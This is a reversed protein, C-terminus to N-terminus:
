NLVGSEALYKQAVKNGLSASLIFQEEALNKKGLELLTHGYLNLALTNFKNEILARQCFIYANELDNQDFYIKALGYLAESNNPDVELIENYCKMAMEFSKNIRYCHGELNFNEPAPPGDFIISSWEKWSKSSELKLQIGESDMNGGKSTSYLHCFESIKIGPTIEILKRSDSFMADDDEMYYLILFRIYYLDFFGPKINIASTIDALADTYNGDRYRFLARQSYWYWLNQRAPYNILNEVLAKAESKSGSMVLYRFRNVLSNFELHSRGKAYKSYMFLLYSLLVILVVGTILKTEM